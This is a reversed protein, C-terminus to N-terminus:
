AVEGLIMVEAPSLEINAPMAPQEAPQPEPKETLAAILEAEAASTLFIDLCNSYDGIRLLTKGTILTRHVRIEAGKEIHFDTHSLCAM